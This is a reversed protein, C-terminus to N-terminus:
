LTTSQMKTAFNLGTAQWFGILTITQLSRLVGPWRVVDTPALMGGLMGRDVPIWQRSKTEPSNAIAQQNSTVVPSIQSSAARNLVPPSAHVRLREPTWARCPVPSRLRMAVPSSIWALTANKSVFTLGVDIPLTIDHFNGPGFRHVRDASWTRPM